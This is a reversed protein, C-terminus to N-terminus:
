HAHISLFPVAVATSNAMASKDYIWFYLGKPNVPIRSNCGWRLWGVKYRYLGITILIESEIPAGRERGAEQRSPALVGQAIIGM